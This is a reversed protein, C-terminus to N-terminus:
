APASGTARGLRSVLQVGVEAFPGHASCLTRGLKDQWAGDEFPLGATEVGDVILRARRARRAGAM